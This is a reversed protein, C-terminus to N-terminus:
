KLVIPFLVRRCGRMIYHKIHKLTVSFLIIPYYLVNYYFLSSIVTSLRIHISSSSYLHTQLLRFHMKIFQDRSNYDAM